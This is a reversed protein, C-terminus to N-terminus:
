IVVTTKQTIVSSIAKTQEKGALTVFSRLGGLEQTSLSVVSWAMDEGKFATHAGELLVEIM